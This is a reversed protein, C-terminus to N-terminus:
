LFQWAGFIPDFMGIGSGRTVMKATRRSPSLTVVIIGLNKLIQGGKRGRNQRGRRRPRVCRIGRRSRDPRGRRGRGCPAGHAEVTGFVVNVGEEVLVVDLVLPLPEVVNVQIRLWKGPSLGAGKAKSGRWEGSATHRSHRLRASMLRQM